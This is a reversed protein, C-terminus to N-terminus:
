PYFGGDPARDEVARPDPNAPHHTEIRWRITKTPRLVGRRMGWWLSFTFFDVETSGCRLSIRSGFLRRGGCEFPGLAAGWLKYDARPGGRSDVFVEVVWDGGLVGKVRFRQRHDTPSIHLKAKSTWRVDVVADGHRDDHRVYTEHADASATPGIVLALVSLCSLVLRGIGRSGRASREM